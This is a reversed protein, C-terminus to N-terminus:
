DECLVLCILLRFEVVCVRLIVQDRVDQSKRKKLSEKSATLKKAEKSLIHQGRLESLKQMAPLVAAWPHTPNGTPDDEGDYCDFMDLQQEVWNVLYPVNRCDKLGQRHVEALCDDKAKKVAGHAASYWCFVPQVVTNIVTVLDSPRLCSRPGRNGDGSDRERKARLPDQKVQVNAEAAKFTPKPQRPSRRQGEEDHVAHPSPTQPEEAEGATPGSPFRLCAFFSCSQRDIFDPCASALRVCVARAERWSLFLCLARLFFIPISSFMLVYLHGGVSAWTLSM